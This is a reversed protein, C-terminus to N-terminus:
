YFSIDEEIESIIDKAKLANIRKEQAKKIPVTKNEDVLLFNKDISFWENFVEDSDIIKLNEDLVIVGERLEFAQTCKLILDDVVYELKKLKDKDEIIFDAKKLFDDKLNKVFM